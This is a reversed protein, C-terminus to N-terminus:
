NAMGLWPKAPACTFPSRPRDCMCSSPSGQGCSIGAPSRAGRTTHGRSRAQQIHKSQFSAFYMMAAGSAGIAVGHNYETSEDSKGGDDCARVWSGLLSALQPSAESGQTPSAQPRRRWYCPGLRSLGAPGAPAHQMHRQSVSGPPPPSCTSTVRAPVLRISNLGVRMCPMSARMLLIASRSPM